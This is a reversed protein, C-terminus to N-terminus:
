SYLAGEHPMKRQHLATFVLLPLPVYPPLLSYAITFVFLSMPVFACLSAIPNLCYYVAVLALREANLAL